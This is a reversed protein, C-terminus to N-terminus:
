GDGGAKYLYRTIRAVDLKKRHAEVVARGSWYGWRRKVVGAKELRDRREEEKRGGGGSWKKRRIRMLCKRELHHFNVVVGKEEPNTEEEGEHVGVTNTGIVDGVGEGGRDTGTGNGKGLGQDNGTETLESSSEEETGLSSLRDLTSDYLGRQVLSLRLDQHYVVKERRM